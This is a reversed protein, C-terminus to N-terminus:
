RLSDYVYALSSVSLKLGTVATLVVALLISLLSTMFTGVSVHHHVDYFPNAIVDITYNPTYVYIPIDRCFEVPKFLRM